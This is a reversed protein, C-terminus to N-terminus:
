VRMGCERCLCEGIKWGTLLYVAERFATIREKFMEKLRLNLKSSDAVNNSSSSSSTPATQSLTQIHQVSLNMSANVADIV